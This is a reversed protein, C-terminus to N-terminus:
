ENIPRTPKPVPRSRRASFPQLQLRWINDHDIGALSFAHTQLFDVVAIKV